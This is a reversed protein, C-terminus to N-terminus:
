TGKMCHALTQCVLCLPCNGSAPLQGLPGTSADATSVALTPTPFAGQLFLWSVRQALSEVGHRASVAGAECEM